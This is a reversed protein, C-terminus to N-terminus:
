HSRRAARWLLAACAGLAILAPRHMSAWLMVCSSRSEADFAGHTRHMGPVPQWLNAHADSGSTFNADAVADSNADKAAYATPTRDANEGAQEGEPAFAHAGGNTGAKTDANIGAKVGENIGKNSGAGVARNAAPEKAAYNAADGSAHAHGDSGEGFGASGAERQQGRYGTRALYRDLLGAAVKNAWIAKFTSVGVYLERRRHMSAWVVARAAVEPQYIPAVPRPRGPMLCRAWEFQPTNMAPMQVMTIHVKSGEHLLECRVADTFGRIAHKAGCYASQLPIARYALASGVQVVCGRDRPRMCALAAMTGHVYGLYTVETVRRFEAATMASLPGFVTVMANNVWVDIPGLTEEIHRAAAEVAEADAVDLPMVLSKVGHRGLQRATDDLGARDRAILAVATGGRAYADAIARGLGASAGTVVVVRPFKLGFEM